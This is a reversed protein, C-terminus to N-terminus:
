HMKFRPLINGLSFDCGFNPLDTRLIFGASQNLIQQLAIVSKDSNISNGYVKPFYYFAM